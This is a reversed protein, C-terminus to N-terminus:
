NVYFINNLFTSSLTLSLPPCFAVERRGVLTISCSCKLTELPMRGSQNQSQTGKDGQVWRARQRKAERDRDSVRDRDRQRDTEGEREGGGGRDSHIERETCRDSETDRDRQAGIARERQM